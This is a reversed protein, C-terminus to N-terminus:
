QCPCWQCSWSPWGSSGRLGAAASGGRPGSCRSAALSCLRQGAPGPPKSCGGPQWHAPRGPGPLQRWPIRTMIQSSSSQELSLSAINAPPHQPQELELTV